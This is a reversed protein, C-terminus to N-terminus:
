VDESILGSSVACNSIRNGAGVNFGTLPLYLRGTKAVTLLTRRTSEHPVGGITAVGRDVRGEPRGTRTEIRIIVCCHLHRGELVPPRGAGDDRLRVEPVMCARLGGWAWTLTFVLTVFPNLATPDDTHNCISPAM